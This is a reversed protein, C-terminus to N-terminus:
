QTGRFSDIPSFLEYEGLTSFGVFYQSCFMGAYGTGHLIPYLHSQTTGPFVRGGGPVRAILTHGGGVGSSQGSTDWISNIGGGLMEPVEWRADRRQVLALSLARPVCKDWVCVCVGVGVRVRDWGEEKLIGGYGMGNVGKEKRGDLSRDV